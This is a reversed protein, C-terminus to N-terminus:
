ELTCPPDGAARPDTSGLHCDRPGLGPVEGRESAFLLNKVRRGRGAAAAQLTLRLAAPSLTERPGLKLSPQKTETLVCNNKEPTGHGSPTLFIYSFRWKLEADKKEWVFM